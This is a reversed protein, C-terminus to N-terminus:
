KYFLSTQWRRLRHADYSLVLSVEPSLLRSLFESKTVSKNVCCCYQFLKKNDTIVLDRLPMVNYFHSGEGSMPLSPNKPSYRLWCCIFGHLKGKFVKAQWNTFLFGCQLDQFTHLSQTSCFARVTLNCKLYDLTKEVWCWLRIAM